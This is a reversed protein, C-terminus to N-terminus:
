KPFSSRARGLSFGGSGRERVRKERLAALIKEPTVPLEKVWIGAADHIANVIAPATATAAPEGIGKAGFPAERHESEVLIPIVEPLDMFSAMKYDALTDNLVRGKETKFEEWLANSIGMVAAGEIQQECLLPNIARGMDHAAAVRLVKVVGTETDVEVEIAHTAFTWFISSMDKLGPSSELLPSGEPTYTGEGILVAANKGSRPDLLSKLELSKGPDGRVEGNALSLGAPDTELIEGAAFLIKERLQRGALLIANGMHFTSRSSTAGFDYPSVDTDPHPFSISSVPVGIADAAIQRLVTKQGAGIEVTSSFLIISGDRNLQVRARSETPTNTGKIMTAIGKGRVKAGAPCPKAEEWDIARAAKELTEKLGVGHLAQGNIYPDGELYCNRRRIELPDIRLKAAIIDMQVECAFAVQTTGFGRYAGSPQKNTYVLRSIMELNPIRYPGFVTLAGRVSVEPSKLSYAGNDWTIEAKRATFTGDRKMGTKLKLHAGVRTQTATLEEERTYVIKVPLGPTFRALAVALGEAILAGKGGFGGGAYTSIFRIKEQPIGLGKALEGTRRHPGDTASWVTIRGDPQIQAVAAHTEMPTHAVAHVFFEDEFVEHAEAFGANLDGLTYTQLTAINTGPVIRYRSGRPYEELREHVLPAGQRAAERPDFVAPLEEYEVRIKKLAERAETETAAAVLAV